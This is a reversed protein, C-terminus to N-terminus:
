GRLTTGRAADLAAVSGSARVVYLRRDDPSFGMGAIRGAAYPGRVRGFAADYAWIAGGTSFYLTRGDHSMAGIAASAGSTSPAGRFRTTQEVAGQALDIKAVVGLVPNAAYLTTGDRSLVFVYQSLSVFDARDGAPLDLCRAYARQLDLAHVFASEGDGHIYLTLLWSGDPSGVSGWASGVMQANEGKVKLSGPRLAGKAVDYLRVVYSTSLHQILFLRRGDNSVTEVEWWGRLPMTRVVAHRDTSYVVVKTMGRGPESAALALWRGNASIGALWWRGAISSAGLLRGTSTDYRAITTRHPLASATFFRSGDGSLLGRGLAFRRQGTSLDYASLPGITGSPRVYLLRSGAFTVSQAACSSPPCGGASHASAVSAPVLVLALLSLPVLRTM